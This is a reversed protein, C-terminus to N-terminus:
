VLFRTKRLDSRNVQDKVQRSGNEYKYKIKDLCFNQGLKIIIQSFSHGRSRVCPIELMQGLSRSKSEVCGM